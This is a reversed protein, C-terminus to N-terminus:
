FRFGVSPRLTFRGNKIDRPSFVYLAMLRAYVNDSISFDMGVGANLSFTSVWYAISYDAGATPFVSFTSGLNFPYKFNASATFGTNENVIKIGASIVLYTFDVFGNFGYTTTNTELDYSIDGGGGASVKIGNQAFIGGATFLLLMVALMAGIAKMFIRRKAWM